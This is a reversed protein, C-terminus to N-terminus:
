NASWFRYRYAKYGNLNAWSRWMTVVRDYSNTKTSEWTQVGNGSIYRVFVVHSGPKNLIDGLTVSETPISYAIDSNDITYTSRKEGLQWLRSVFGSCDVGYTCSSVASTDIDGADKGDNMASNFQGITHWGGWKYPVSSYYRNYSTIYRPRTNNPCSRTYNAYSCYWSNEYYDWALNNADNRSWGEPIGAMAPEPCPLRFLEALKNLFERFRVRKTKFYNSVLEASSVPELKVEEISVKSKRPVMAYIKGETAILSRQFNFVQCENLPYSGEALLNAQADFKKVSKKVEIEPKMKFEEVSFILNNNSDSGLYSLCGLNEDSTLSIKKKSGGSTIEIEAQHPNSQFEASKIKIEGKLQNSTLKESAILNKILKGNKLVAVEKSEAQKISLSGDASVNLGSASEVLQPELEFSQSIKRSKLDFLVIKPPQSALDLAALKGQYFIIDAIGIVSDPYAISGLWKGKPSFIDIERNVGDNIYFNNEPSVAFSSPGWPEVEPEIQYGIEGKESGVKVEFLVKNGEEAKSVETKLGIPLNALLSTLLFAFFCRKFFKKNM